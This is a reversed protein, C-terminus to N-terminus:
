QSVIRITTENNTDPENTATEEVTPENLAQQSVVQEHIVSLGAAPESIAIKETVPEHGLPENAVDDKAPLPQELTSM